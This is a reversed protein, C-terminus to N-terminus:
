CSCQIFFKVFAGPSTCVVRVCMRWFWSSMACRCLLPFCWGGRITSGTVESFPCGPLHCHQLWESRLMRGVFSHSDLYHIEHRGFLPQSLFFFLFHNSTWWSWQFCIASSSIQWLLLLKRNPFKFLQTHFIYVNQTESWNRLRHRKYVRWATIILDFWFNGCNNASEIM